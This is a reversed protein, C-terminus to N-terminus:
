AFAQSRKFSKIPCCHVIISFIENAYGLRSSLRTIICAIAEQILCLSPLKETAYRKGWQKVRDLSPDYPFQAM